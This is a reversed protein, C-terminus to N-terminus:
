QSTSRRSGKENLVRQAALRPSALEAFHRGPESLVLAVIYGCLGNFGCFGSAFDLNPNYQYFLPRVMPLSCTHILTKQLPM